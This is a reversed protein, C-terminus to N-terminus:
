FSCWCKLQLNFLVGVNVPMLLHVYQLFSHICLTGNVQLLIRVLETSGFRSAELLCQNVNDAGGEVLMGLLGRVTAASIASAWGTEFSSSFLTLPFCAADFAETFDKGTIQDGALDLFSRFALLQLQIEFHSRCEGHNVSDQGHSHIHICKIAWDTFKKVKASAEAKLNADGNCEQLREHM